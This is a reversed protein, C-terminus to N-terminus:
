TIKNILNSFNPIKEADSLKEFTIKYCDICIKGPFLELVDLDENECTACKHKIM